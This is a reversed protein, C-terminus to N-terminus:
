SPWPSVILRPSPGPSIPSLRAATDRPVPREAVATAQPPDTVRAHEEVVPLELAEPVVVVTLQAQAVRAVAAVTRALHAVTQRRHRQARAAGGDSEHEALEV